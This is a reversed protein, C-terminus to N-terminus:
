REWVYIEEPEPEFMRANDIGPLHALARYESAMAVWAPTEAVIAPKCAIADRLVAFSDATTVALTYFGDLTESLRRLAKPLEAGQELEHAIFRAGVESDNESDFSVGESRLQRRVTAHNSFSGNHVLCLDAGVSFPHSGSPTVASETAMRSHAVAQWGTAGALDFSTALREPGGTAKLVALDNGWSTIVAEPAVSRVAALLVGAPVPAHVICTQAGGHEMVAAVDYGDAQLAAEVAGTLGPPAELVGVATHGDGVYRDDGYIGIGASDPGREGMEGLMGVMLPGLLDELGPDRLHLGAIFCM